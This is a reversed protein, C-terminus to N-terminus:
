PRTSAYTPLPPWDCKGELYTRRAALGDQQVTVALLSLNSTKFTDMHVHLTQLIGTLKRIHSYLHAHAGTKMANNLQLLVPLCSSYRASRRDSGSWSLSWMCGGGWWVSLAPRGESRAPWLVRFGRSIRSLRISFIVNIFMEFTCAFLSGMYWSSIVAWTVVYRHIRFWRDCVFMM